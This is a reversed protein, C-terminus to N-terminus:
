IADALARGFQRAVTGLFIGIAEANAAVRSCASGSATAATRSRERSRDLNHVITQAVQVPAGCGSDLAQSLHPCRGDRYGQQWGKKKNTSINRQRDIWYRAHLMRTGPDTLAAAACWREGPGWAGTVEGGAEESGAVAVSLTATM